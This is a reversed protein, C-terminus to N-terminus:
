KALEAEIAKVMEPSQPKVASRYRAVVRGKRDVLFKEFNWKVPGRDAIPVDKGTLYRYLQCAKDGNVDVKSFMDFKVDYKSQCFRQIEESSGPEQGGFQNCPFALIALGKQGYAEHLFELEKYQPTYGCKSAVNVILVVSGSYRALSTEQGALTKMTFNLVAPVDAAPRTTAGAAPQTTAPQTTSAGDALLATTGCLVMLVCSLLAKTTM